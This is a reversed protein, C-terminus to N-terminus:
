EHNLFSSIKEMIKNISIKRFKLQSVTNSRTVINNERTSDELESKGKNNEQSM